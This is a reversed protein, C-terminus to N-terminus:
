LGAIYNGITTECVGLKLALQRNTLKRRMRIAKRLYSLKWGTISKPRM